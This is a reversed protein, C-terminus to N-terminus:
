AVVPATSMSAGERALDHARRHLPHAGSVKKIVVKLDPHAQLWDYLRVVHWREHRSRKRLHTPMSALDTHVEAYRFGQSYAWELADLIAWSESAFNRSGDDRVPGRGEKLCEHGNAFAVWGFGLQRTFWHAGDTWIHLASPPAITASAVM